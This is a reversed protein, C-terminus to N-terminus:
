GPQPGETRVNRVNVLADRLNELWEGQNQAVLRVCWALAESRSRAVGGEILTDLVKREPLRLRTMVPTALHTFLRKNDGVAAGWSVKRAFTAEAEAAIDIRADRTRERFARIRAAPDADDGEKGGEGAAPALRGVVLIEDDDVDVDPIGEFWGEPIRSAFWETITETVAGSTRTTM